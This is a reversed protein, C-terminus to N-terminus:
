RDDPRKGDWFWGLDKRRVQWGFDFTRFKVSVVWHHGQKITWGNNPISAQGDFGPLENDVSTINDLTIM